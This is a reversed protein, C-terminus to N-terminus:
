GESYNKEKKDKSEKGPCQTEMYGVNVPSCLEFVEDPVVRVVVIVGDPLAVTQFSYM